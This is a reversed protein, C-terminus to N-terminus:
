SPALDILPKSPAATKIGGKVLDGFVESSSELMGRLALLQMLTRSALWRRLTEKSAIRRLALFEMWLSLAAHDGPRPARKGSDEDLGAASAPRNAFDEAEFLVYAEANLVHNLPWM